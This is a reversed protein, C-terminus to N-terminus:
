FHLYRRIKLVYIFEPLTLRLIKGDVKFYVNQTKTITNSIIKDNNNNIFIGFSCIVYASM